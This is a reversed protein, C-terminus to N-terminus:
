QCGAARERREQYTITKDTKPIKVMELPYADSAFRQCALITRVVVVFYKGQTGVSDVRIQDGPSQRGAGVVLVLERDFNVAPQEPRPSQAATARTWVDSWSNLDRVEM